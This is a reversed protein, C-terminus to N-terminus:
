SSALDPLIQEEAQGERRAGAHASTDPETKRARPVLRYHGITDRPHYNVRSRYGNVTTARRSRQKAELWEDLLDAVTMTSTLKQGAQFRRRTKELEPIPAM